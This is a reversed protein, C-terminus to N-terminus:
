HRNFLGEMAKAVREARLAMYPHGDCHSLATVGRHDVFFLEDFRALDDAEFAEERLELGAARVAHLAVDREVSPFTRTHLWADADSNLEWAQQQGVGTFAPATFVIGDKVALLPADDATLCMGTHSCQLAIQAGVLEAQQRALQATAERASTPADSLPNEYPIVTADPTLSRLAYGTYLSVGAPIIREIGDTTLELRVFSSMSHPYREADAIAAIRATLQHNDPTYDRGFLTRSAEGLLAAHAGVLRPRGECLHITQYLYLETM